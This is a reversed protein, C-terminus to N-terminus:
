PVPYQPFPPIDNLSRRVLTGFESTRRLKSSPLSRVESDYPVSSAIPKITHNLDSFERPAERRMIAFKEIMVSAPNRDGGRCNAGVRRGRERRGAGRAALGYFQISLAARRFLSPQQQSSTRRCRPRWTSRMRLTARCTLRSTSAPLLTHTTTEAIDPAVLWSTAHTRSAETSCSARSYSATTAVPSCTVAPSSAM